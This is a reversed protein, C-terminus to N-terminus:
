ENNAYDCPKLKFLVYEVFTFLVGRQMRMLIQHPHTFGM